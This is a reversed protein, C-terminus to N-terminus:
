YHTELAEFKKGLLEKLGLGGFKPSSLKAIAKKEITDVANRTIGMIVAIEDTEFTGNFRADLDMVENLAVAFDIGHEAEYDLVTQRMELLRDVGGIKKPM